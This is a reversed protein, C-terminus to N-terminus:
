ESYEYLEYYGNGYGSTGANSMAYGKIGNQSDRYLLGRGEGNTSSLTFRFTGTSVHAYFLCSDDALSLTANSSNATVYKGDKNVLTYKGESLTITVAYNDTTSNSAIINSSILTSADVAGIVGSSVSAFNIAYPTSSYEQVLIYKNGSTISSVKSYKPDGGGGGASITYTASAVASNTYNSKVAIAKITTTESVSIASSYPTSSATPTSNDTTYYITAGETACSLEVSQTSSYSGGAVSFTPSAVVSGPQKITITKTVGTARLTVKGQREDVSPNKPANVTLTFPESGSIAASLWSAAESNVSCAVDFDDIANSYTFTTSASNEDGEDVAITITNSAPDIAPTGSATPIAYIFIDDIRANSSSSNTFTISFTEGAFSNAVSINYTIKYPKSSSEARASLTVGDTNSTVTHYTSTKQNSIYSLTLTKSVTAPIGSITFTGNNSSGDVKALFLEGAAAGGATNASGEGKQYVKTNTNSGITYAITAGSYVTQGEKDSNYTAVTETSSGTASFAESLILIDDVCNLAPAVLMKNRSMTVAAKTAKEYVKTGGNKLTFTLIGVNGIPLPIYFVMTRAALAKEFNITLEKNSAADTAVIHKPDSSPTFQGVIQKSDSSVVLKDADKDVNYCILKLVSGVAMFTVAKTSTNVTGLMPMSSTNEGWDISPELYFKGSEHNASAPYFAEESLEGTFSDSSFDVSTGGAATEFDYPDGSDNLVTVKDGAQWLFKGGNDTSVKTDENEPVSARLTVVNAPEDTENPTIEVESVKACSALVVTVAAFAYYFKKM